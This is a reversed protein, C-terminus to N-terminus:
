LPSSTLKMGECYHGSVTDSDLSEVCKKGPFIPTVCEHTIYSSDLNM